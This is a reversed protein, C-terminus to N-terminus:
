VELEDVLKKTRHDDGLLNRRIELTKTLANIGEDPIEQRVYAIYLNEYAEVTSPHM